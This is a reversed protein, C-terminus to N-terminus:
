ISDNGRDLDDADSIIHAYVDKLALGKELAIKRTDEYEPIFRCSGDPQVVKKVPISGYRTNIVAKSRDLFFRDCKHHRVGISTTQTLIVRAVSDVDESKCIVEIQTGPRNKKMHVPVFCVDLAGGDMLTDMLFGSIEPNMDDVNTKVVSITERHIYKESLSQRDTVEGLFLRLLNPMRSGTDRKGAGYGVQKITMRPMRGFEKCLTKILAAGTPTVIETEADSSRVPTDKLIAVTAPVPVPIIGHDCKISGSGLPVISAQVRTVGLYEIALFTGIIDVLSDIGGVEHFHITEIDSGHIGAEAEAIRRFAELSNLKVPESLSSKEILERIHLYHRHSPEKEVSLVSLDTAKLHHRFVTETRIEFGPFIDELKRTLWEAPVGLDVLGGLFMDGSIGSLMDVYLIM